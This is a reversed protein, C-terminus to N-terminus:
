KAAFSALSIHLHPARILAISAYIAFASLSRASSNSFAPKCLVDNYPKFYLDKVDKICSIKHGRQTLRAAFVTMREADLIAESNLVAIEIKNM